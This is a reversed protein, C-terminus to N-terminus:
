GLELEGYLVNDDYLTRIVENRTQILRELWDTFSPLQGFLKRVAPHHYAVTYERGPLEGDAVFCWENGNGDLGFPILRGYTTSGGERFPIVDTAHAPPRQINQIAMIQRSGEGVASVEQIEFLYAGNSFEQVFTKYSDPLLQGLAAETVAVAEPNAVPYTEHTGEARLLDVAQRIAV